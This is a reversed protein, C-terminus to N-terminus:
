VQITISGCSKGDCDFLITDVSDLVEKIQEKTELEQPVAAWPWALLNGMKGHDDPFSVSM